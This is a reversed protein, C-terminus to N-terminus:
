IENSKEAYLLSGGSIMSVISDKFEWSLAFCGWSRGQIYNGEKVYDSGHVVIARSRVNSNTSSLGDLRISRGYKGSYIEAVRYYGRSSMHTSNSNGLKEVYGDRDVDSGAGHAVHFSSVAGTKMNVVFFRSNTSRSYFDVITIYNKNKFSSSNADYYRLANQLLKTPILRKPDIHSYSRNLDLSFLMNVVEPEMFNNKIEEQAAEINELSPYDPDFSDTNELKILDSNELNLSDDAWSMAATFSIVCYVLTKMM